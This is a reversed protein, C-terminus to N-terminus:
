HIMRCISSTSLIGSCSSSCPKHICLTSPYDLLALLPPPLTNSDGSPFVKSYASLNPNLANLLAVFYSITRAPMSRGFAAFAHFSSIFGSKWSTTSYDVPSNSALSSEIFFYCLLTWFLNASILSTYNEM